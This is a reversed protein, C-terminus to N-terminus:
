VPDQKAFLVLEANWANPDVDGASVNAPYVCTAHQAM